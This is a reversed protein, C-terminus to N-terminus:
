KQKSTIVICVGYLKLLYVINEHMHVTQHIVMFIPKKLNGFHIIFQKELKWIGKLSVRTTHIKKMMNKIYWKNM